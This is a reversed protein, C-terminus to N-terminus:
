IFPWPGRVQKVWARLGLMAPWFLGIALHISM